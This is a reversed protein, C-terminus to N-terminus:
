VTTFDLLPLQSSHTFLGVSVSLLTSACVNVKAAETYITEERSAEQSLRHKKSGEHTRGARGMKYKRM